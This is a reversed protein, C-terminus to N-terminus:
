TSTPVPFTFLMWLDLISDFVIIKRIANINFNYLFVTSVINVGGRKSVVNMILLKDITWKLEVDMAITQLLICFYMPTKRRSLSNFTSANLLLTVNEMKRKNKNQKWILKASKWNRWGSARHKYIFLWKKYYIIFYPELNFADFFIITKATHNEM